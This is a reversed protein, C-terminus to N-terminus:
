TENLWLNVMNWLQCVGGSSSCLNMGKAVILYVCEASLGSFFRPDSDAIEPLIDVILQVYSDNLVDEPSGIKSSLRLLDRVNNKNIHGDLLFNTAYCVLRSICLQDAAYLLECINSHGINTVTGCYLFEIVMHLIEPQCVDIPIM